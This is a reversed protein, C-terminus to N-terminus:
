RGIISMYLKLIEKSMNSINFHEEVWKRSSNGISLLNYKSSIISKLTKKLKNNNHDEYSNHDGFYRKWADNFISPEVLGFYGHNGMAIVPKGCSLAELAVRGSGVVCDSACYCNKLDLREGLLHIFKQKSSYNMIKSMNEIAAIYEGSGVVVVHIDKKSTNRLDNCVTLLKKCATLKGWALRSAYVIVFADSSIGLEKRLNNNEAPSFIKTDIGNPILVSDVKHNLLYKKVPESVSIVKTNKNLYPLVNKYYLGHITFVCPLHLRKLLNLTALGSPPHHLHVINIRESEIIKSIDKEFISKDKKIIYIPCGIKKFDEYLKGRRGAIVVTVGLATLSTALALVHTETGGIDMGDLVM